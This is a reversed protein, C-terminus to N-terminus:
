VGKKRCKKDAFEIMGDLTPFYIYKGNIVVWYRNKIDSYRKIWIIPVLDLHIIEDDRNPYIGIRMYIDEAKRAKEILNDLGTVRVDKALAFKHASYDAGIGDFGDRYGSTIIGDQGNDKQKRYTGGGYPELGTKECWKVYTSLVPYPVRTQITIIDAVPSATVRRVGLRPLYIPMLAIDDM